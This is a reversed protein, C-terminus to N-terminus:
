PVPLEAVPAMSYIEGAGDYSPAAYTGRQTTDLTVVLGDTPSSFAWVQRIPGTLPTFRVPEPASLLVSIPLADESAHYRLLEALDPRDLLGPTASYVANPFAFVTGGFTRFLPELGATRVAQAHLTLGELLATDYGDVFPRLFDTIVYLVGNSAELSRVPLEQSLIRPGTTMGRLITHVTGDLATLSEGDTLEDYRHRGEVVHALPVRRQLAANEPLTLAQSISSGRRQYTETSPAFVTLAEDRDDLRAAVDAYRRVDEAFRAARPQIRLLDGLTLTAVVVDGLVYVRGDATDQGTLVRIGGVTRTAGYATPRVEVRLTEGTLTTVTAGDPLAALDVRGPLVHAALTRTLIANQAVLLARVDGLRVFADDIPALLTVPGTTSTLVGTRAALDRFTSLTPSLAVRERTSLATTVVSLAEYAVGNDTEIRTQLDLAVGDVTVVPGVRAVRLTTGALTTLTAGDVLDDPALRGPVVHHLVLRALLVRQDPALVVGVLDDGLADFAADSPAFVTFPGAGDLRETLGATEVITALDGFNLTEGFRAALTDAPEPDGSDCGAAFALCTALSLLAALRAARRLPAFCAPM